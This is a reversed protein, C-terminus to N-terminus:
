EKTKFNLNTKVYGNKKEVAGIASLFTIYKYVTAYSMGTEGEIMEYTIHTNGKKNESLIFFVLHGILLYGERSKTAEFLIKGVYSFEDDDFHYNSTKKNKGKM